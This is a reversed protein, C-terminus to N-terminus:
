DKLTWYRHALCWDLRAKKMEATLGPKRTPKTKRFGTKKLVRWVTMASVPHGAKTM